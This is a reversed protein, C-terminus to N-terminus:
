RRGGAVVKRSSQRRKRVVEQIEKDTLMNL